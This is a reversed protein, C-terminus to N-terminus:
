SKGETHRDLAAIVDAISAITVTQTFSEGISVWQGADDLYGPQLTMTKREVPLRISDLEDTV